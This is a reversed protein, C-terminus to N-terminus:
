SKTLTFPGNQVPATCSSTVVSVNGALTSTTGITAAASGGIQGTCAPQSPIGGPGVTIVFTLASGALTGSLAGNLLVTGSPLVLIIPGAVTSSGSAQTLTWTMRATTGQVAFDGSWTGTLNSASPGTPSTDSTGCGSLVISGVLITALFLRMRM